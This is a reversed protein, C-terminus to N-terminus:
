YEDKLGYLNKILKKIPEDTIQNIVEVLFGNILLERAEKYSLGRSMLYFISNDDLSGSASGHSCKVDDAYIELETILIEDGEKLYKQGFTNAVLNIAETAGKTFVIENPDKANIYKQVLVRTNEYLNTAAVALYHVSPGVNSFEKTYFDYIKAVVVKPKQSSNASDLYVLDNNHVKNDFIPFEKKIDKINM